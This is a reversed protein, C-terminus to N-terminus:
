LVKIIEKIIIVTGILLFGIAGVYMRFVNGENGKINKPKYSPFLLIGILVLLFGLLFQYIDM